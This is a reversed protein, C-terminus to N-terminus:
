AIASEDDAISTVGIHQADVAEPVLYSADPAWSLAVRDGPHIGRVMDEVGVHAVLDAGQDTRAQCRLVPGQFVVGTLTAEIGPGGIPAVQLREPRVMLTVEQGVTV